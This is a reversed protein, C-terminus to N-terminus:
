GLGDRLLQLGPEPECADLDVSGQLRLWAAFLVEVFRTRSPGLRTQRRPPALELWEDSGRSVSIGVGTREAADLAATTDRPHRAVLVQMPAYQALPAVMEARRWSRGTAVLRTADCPWPLTATAGSATRDVMAPDLERVKRELDPTMASWDVEIGHPLSSLTEIDGFSTIAGVGRRRREDLGHANITLEANFSISAWRIPGVVCRVTDGSRSADNGAQTM